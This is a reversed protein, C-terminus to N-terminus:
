FDIVTLLRQLYLRQSVGKMHSLEFRGENGVLVTHFPEHLVDGKTIQGKHMMLYLDEFFCL